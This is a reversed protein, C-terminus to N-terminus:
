SAGGGRPTFREPIELESMNALLWGGLAFVAGVALLVLQGTPSDYADLYPRSILTLGAITAAVVGAIVRAATRVRTRGVEVRIRMRAEGRISEALRSLLGVLDSAQTRAAISLGAVVLDASPHAVEAGFAALAAPLSQHDIRGVLAAVETRIAAPAVPATAVIAEELGAAAAITDRVQETWSAVAETREISSRREAGGGLVLPAYAAALGALAAGAVWGTLAGVALAAGAVTAARVPDLRRLLARSPETGVPGFVQRGRLGSLALFAGAGSLAALTAIVITTM